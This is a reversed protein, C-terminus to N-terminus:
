VRTLVGDVSKPSLILVDAVQAIARFAHCRVLAPEQLEDSAASALGADGM